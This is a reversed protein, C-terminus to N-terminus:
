VMLSVGWTRQGIDAVVNAVCRNAMDELLMPNLRRRVSFSLSLPGREQLSMPVYEGRDVERGDFDPRFAAQHGEIKEECHFQLSPANVQRRARGRQPVREHFLDCLVQRVREVTKQRVLLVDQHIAVRIEAGSKAAHQLVGVHLWHSQRWSTRIQIRM